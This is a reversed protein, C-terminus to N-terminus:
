QSLRSRRTGRALYLFAALFLLGIVTPGVFGELVSVLLFPVLTTTLVLVPVLLQGRKFPTHPLFLQTLFSLVLATLYWGAFNLLPVGYYFGEQEWIWYGRVGTAVPELLLDVWVAGFATFFPIWVSGQRGALASYLVSHIPWVIVWWALPISLPLSGALRPGFAGTYRYHGFPWGTAAGIWEVVGGLGGILLLALCAIGAPAHSVLHLFLVLAALAMFIFDAWPGLPTPLQAGVVFLGVLFWVGYVFLVLSYLRYFSRSRYVFLSMPSPRPSDQRLSRSKDRL